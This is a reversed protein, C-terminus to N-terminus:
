CSFADSYLFAITYFPSKESVGIDGLNSPKYSATVLIICVMATKFLYAHIILAYNLVGKQTM